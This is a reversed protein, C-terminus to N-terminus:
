VSLFPSSVSSRCPLVPPHVSPHDLTVEVPEPLLEHLERDPLLLELFRHHDDHALAPLREQVLGIAPGLGGLGSSLLKPSPDLFTPRCFESTESVHPVKPPPSPYTRRFVPGSRGSDRTLERSGSPRRLSSARVDRLSCEYRVPPRGSGDCTGSPRCGVVGGPGRQHLRRTAGPTREGPRCPTPGRRAPDLSDPADSSEPGKVGSDRQVGRGRVETRFTLGTSHTQSSGGTRM